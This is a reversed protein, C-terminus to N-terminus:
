VMLKTKMWWNEARSRCLGSRVSLYQVQLANSRHVKKRDDHVDRRYSQGRVAHRHSIDLATLSVLTNYKDRRCVSVTKPTKDTQHILTVAAFRTTPSDLNPLTAIATTSRWRLTIVCYYYIVTDAMSDSRRKFCPSM